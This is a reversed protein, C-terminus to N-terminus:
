PLYIECGVNEKIWKKLYQKPILNTSGIKIAPFGKVKCLDYAKNRGIKMIRTLDTINYFEIEDDKGIVEDIM